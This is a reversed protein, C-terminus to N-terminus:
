FRPTPRESVYVHFAQRLVVPNRCTFVHGDNSVYGLTGAQDTSGPPHFMPLTCYSPQASNTATPQHEPGPLFPQNTVGHAHTFLNVAACTIVILEDTLMLFIPSPCTRVMQFVQGSRRQLISRYIRNTARSDVGHHRAKSGQRHTLSRVLLSLCSSMGLRKWHLSHTIWDKAREPNPRLRASMHQIEAGSCSVPNESRCYDVHTHRGLDACYLNCMMPAGDDNTGFKHGNVEFVADEPGEVSWKVRSMSGHSTEHERQPHGKSLTVWWRSADRSCWQLRVEQFRATIDATKAVTIWDSRTFDM